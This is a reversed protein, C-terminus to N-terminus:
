FGPIGEIAIAHVPSSDLGRIPLPMFVILCTDELLQDLNRLVEIILIDNGLLIDHFANCQDVNNEISIGDGFGVAKVKKELFWEAAEKGLQPRFDDAVQAFPESHFRSDLLAVDGRQLRGRDAIDLDNRTVIARESCTDLSLFVGRGVYQSFPIDVVDKTLEGHHFPAEVHTGLHSVIDIDTHYDEVELVNTLRRFLVCRRLETSPDISNCLRVIRYPGVDSVNQDPARTGKVDATSKAATKQNAKPNLSAM